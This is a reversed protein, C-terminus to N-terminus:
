NKDSKMPSVQNSKRSTTAEAAATHHQENDVTNDDVKYYLYDPTLTTFSEIWCPCCGTHLSGYKDDVILRSAKAVASDCGFLCCYCPWTLGRCCLHMCINGSCCRWRYICSEKLGEVVPLLRKIEADSLISGAWLTDTLMNFALHDRIIIPKRGQCDLAKEREPGALDFEFAIVSAGIQERRVERKCHALYKDFSTVTDPLSLCCCSTYMVPSNLVSKLDDALKRDETSLVRDYKEHPHIIKYSVRDYNQNISERGTECRRELDYRYKKNTFPQM